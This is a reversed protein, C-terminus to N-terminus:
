KGLMLNIVTNVDAIDVKGDGTLDCGQTSGKGLMANIVINVDAIDVKGDGNVDGTVVPQPLTFTYEVLQSAGSAYIAKIGVTHEGGALRPLTFHPETASGKLVGDLYVEYHDIYGVDITSGEDEGNGVYFDDLQVFFADFSM